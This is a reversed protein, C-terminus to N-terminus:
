PQAPTEASPPEKEVIRGFVAIRVDKTHPLDTRVTVVANLRGVKEAPGFQIQLQYSGPKDAPGPKPTSVRVLPDDSKVELIAFKKVEVPSLTVSRETSEGLRLSGIYIGSPVVDLESKVIGTLTLSVRPQVPDTSDVTVHKTVRDRYRGSKFTVKISGSEGPAFEKKSPMAATCGCSSTVRTITLLSKGTNTFAYDHSVEQDQYL